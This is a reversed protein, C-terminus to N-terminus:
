RHAELTRVRLAELAEAMSDPSEVGADGAHSLLWRLFPGRRRVRFRRIGEEVAEGWGNREALLDLPPAFRIDVPEGPTDGLEWAERERLPELTFDDPIEYDATRPRDPNVVLDDMRDVRFLRLADRGLDWGALYWRSGQYLIGGPQVLRRHTEDRGIAHYDFTVEKRRLVADSLERVAEQLPDPEESVHLIPAVDVRDEDALDFTLKRLASRAAHRFPFAPLNVVQTLGELAARLEDPEVTLAGDLRAEESDLLRVVPLHFDRPRLRYRKEIEGPRVTVDVTEIEIGADRLEAKDREFKRRISDQDAGDGLRMYGPVGELIAGVGVPFHHSALFALLDLLRQTKNPQM